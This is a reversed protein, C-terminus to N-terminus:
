SHMLVDQDFPHINNCFIYNSTKSFFTQITHKKKEMQQSRGNVDLHSDTLYILQFGLSIIISNSASAVLM